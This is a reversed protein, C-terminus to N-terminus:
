SRSLTWEVILTQTIDKTFEFEQSEMLTGTGLRASAGLHYLKLYTIDTNADSADLFYTIFVSDDEVYTILSPIKRFVEGGANFVSLIPYGNVKQTTSCNSDTGCLRYWFGANTDTFEAYQEILSENKEDRFILKEIRALRANMDKIISELNREPSELSLRVNVLHNGPVSNISVTKIQYNDNVNLDSIEIKVLEGARFTGEFPTISGTIVPTSYKALHNQGLQKALIKDNTDVTLVDEFIGYTAQSELDELFIKIPYSYSYVISCVTGGTTLDPVLIKEAANLLFDKTGTKDVNQLGLTRVDGDVTVVITGNEPAYPRYHLPILASSVFTFNQTYPESINVAGKVWLKNVLRSADPTFIATGREYNNATQSLTTPNIRTRREFFNLDLDEDIYWEYGAIGSLKEMVDFLYMDAFSITIVKSSMEVNTLTVWPAYTDFLNVIINGIQAATYSKTVIIKQTRSTYSAGELTVTKVISNMTKPPKIVWGRFKYDDQEIIVDSGVPYKDVIGSEFDPLVLSFSSSKDTVSQTVTCSDFVYIEDQTGGPPTIYIKTGM